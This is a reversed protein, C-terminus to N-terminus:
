DLKWLAMLAMVSLDCARPGGNEKTFQQFFM